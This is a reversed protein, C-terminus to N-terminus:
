IFYRNSWTGCGLLPYMYSQYKSILKVPLLPTIDMEPKYNTDMPTNYRHSLVQGGSEELDKEVIRIANTLYDRGNM